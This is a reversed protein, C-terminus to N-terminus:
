DVLVIMGEPFDHQFEGVNICSGFQVEINLAEFVMDVGQNCELLGLVKSSSFGYCFSNISHSELGLTSGWPGM